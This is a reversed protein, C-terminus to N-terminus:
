LSATMRRWAPLGTRMVTTVQRDDPEVLRVRALAAAARGADGAPVVVDGWAGDPGVVVLRAWRDGLGVLYGDVEQTPGAGHAAAFARVRRAARVSAPDPGSGRGRLGELAGIAGVLLLVAGSVLAVTAGGLVGTAVGLLGGVVPGPWWVAAPQPAGSPYALDAVGPREARLLVADAAVLVLGVCALTTVPAVPGSATAWGTAGVLLLLGLWSLSRDPGM